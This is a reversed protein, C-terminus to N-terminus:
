VRFVWGRRALLWAVLWWVAVNLLAYGLSALKPDAIYDTFLNKYIWQQTTLTGVHTASLLRALLGAGVYITIPNLGVIAFPRALRRFGAIDFVGLCLGLAATALGSTLLIFSSTWIKKNIPLLEHWLQGITATALGAAILLAVTQITPTPPGPPHVGRSAQGPSLVARSAQGPAPVARSATSTHRQIFLGAWYGILTIVISPPTSVLGEPETPEHDYLHKEGILKLDVVRVVNGTPSLNSEYDSVTPTWALLAWYGLLIALSLVVQSRVSLNLVIISAFFYVLAIRQLVGLYRLHELRFSEENGFCRDCAHGFLAMGVGILFLACTRRIIRAYLEPTAGGLERYKRFSYAMATGVIFLFFPFILDTPTWGHWKAHGLPWYMHEWSAPNNVLIMALITAGRFADLSLLRQSQSTADIAAPQTM